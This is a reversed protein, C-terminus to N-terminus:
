KRQSKHTYFAAAIILIAGKVIFQIQVPLQLLLVLNYLTVMILVGAITGSVGGIGGEFSTGGMVVAAVSDLEYGKGVWNDAIGIWGALFLGAVAALVGSIVYCSITVRDTNFGSLHATRINGGVAYVQRGFVTKTLIIIALVTIVALVIVSIPVGLIDGTGLYRLLPPFDGKAAGKTYIFRLGQIIIMMGLTAMFPPVQRKTILLGNALGVLGGFLLCFMAVPFLLVDQGGTNYAVIVAVTAMVSAVSLDLGRVLIVFTQGISVMGLAATQQLIDSINKPALFVPSILSATLILGALFIFIGYKKVSFTRWKKIARLPM